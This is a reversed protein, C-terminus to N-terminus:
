SSTVLVLVVVLVVAVLMVVPVMVVAVVAVAVVVVVAVVVRGGGTGPVRHVLCYPSFLAGFPGFLLAFILDLRLRNRPGRLGRARGSRATHLQGKIELNATM